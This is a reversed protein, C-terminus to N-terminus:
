IKHLTGSLDLFHGKMDGLKDSSGQFALNRDAIFQVVALLRKLVAHRHVKEDTM